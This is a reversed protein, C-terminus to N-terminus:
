KKADEVFEGDGPLHSEPLDSGQSALGTTSNGAEIKHPTRPVGNTLFINNRPRTSTSTDVQM